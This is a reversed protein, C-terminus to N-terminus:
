YFIGVVFVVDFGVGDLRVVVIGHHVLNQGVM